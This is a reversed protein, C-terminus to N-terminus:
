EAYKASVWYVVNDILIPIWDNTAVVDFKYGRKVKGVATYDTSPGKRVNLSSATCVGGVVYDEFVWCISNNYKVCVWDSTDIRDFKDGKRVVKLIGYNMGPGKRINVTNGTITAFSNSIASGIKKLATTMAAKSLPGYEGDVTLRNDKQFKRVAEDTKSGFDGDDAYAGLDYGLKILNKQMEKVDAGKDGKKLVSSKSPQVSTEPKAGGSLETTINDVNNYDVWPLFGHQNWRRDPYGDMAKVNLLGSFQVGDAWTPTCEVVLNDGVYLGFHGPIWVAEGPKIISFDSSKNLCLNFIGDASRDPVGNTGYVAGGKEKSTDGTWGWLIAKYLNVCDFGWTPPNQNAVAKLKNINKTTYWNNLNQKAKVAITNDTVQFGYAAYMYITKYNKAIYIAKDILEKATMLYAMNGDEKKETFWEMPKTGSLRNLDVTGDTGALYGKSTYQHLDYDCTPTYKSDFTGDDKGYRPIWNFDILKKCMVCKPYYRQGVYLGLKKAGREKLRTLFAAGVKDYDANMTDEYEVDAVYFLPNESSATNYFHDAEIRANDVTTAKVYHYTGFPINYKRCNTAYENYKNDKNSGVTARLIVFDLHPAAKAWDIAGQYHSLDAIM